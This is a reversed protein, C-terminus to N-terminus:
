LFLFNGITYCNQAFHLMCLIVYINLLACTVFYFYNIVHPFCCVCCYILLLEIPVVDFRSWYGIHMSPLFTLHKYALAKIWATWVCEVRSELLNGRQFLLIGCLPCLPRVIGHYESKIIFSFKGLLESTAPVM